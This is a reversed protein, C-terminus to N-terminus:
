VLRIDPYSDTFVFTKLRTRRLGRHCVTGCRLALLRLHDASLLPAHVPPQLSATAAPLAVSEAVQFTPLTYPLRALVVTCLRPRSQLGSRCATVCLFFETHVAGPYKVSKHLRYLSWRRRDDTRPSKVTRRVLVCKASQENAAAPGSAQFKSGVWM